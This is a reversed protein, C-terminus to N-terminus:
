KLKRIGLFAVVNRFRAFLAASVFFMVANRYDTHMFKPGTQDVDLIGAFLLAISWKLRM